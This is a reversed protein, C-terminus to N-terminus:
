SNTINSPGNVKEANRLEDIVRFPGCFSRIERLLCTKQARTAFRSLIAFRGDEPRREVRTVTWGRGGVFWAAGAGAETVM